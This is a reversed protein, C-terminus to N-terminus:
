LLTYPLSAYNWVNKLKARCLVHYTRKTTPRKIGLQLAEEEPVTRGIYLVPVGGGELFGMKYIKKLLNVYLINKVHRVSKREV